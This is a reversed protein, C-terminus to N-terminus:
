LVTGAMCSHRRSEMGSRLNRGMRDARSAKAVPSVFISVECYDKDQAMAYKKCSSIANNAQM